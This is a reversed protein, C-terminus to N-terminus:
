IKLNNEDAEALNQYTHLIAESCHIYKGKYQTSTPLLVETLYTWMFIADHETDLLTDTGKMETQISKEGDRGQKQGIVHFHKQFYHKRDEQFSSKCEQHPPSSCIQM